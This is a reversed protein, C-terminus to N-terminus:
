NCRSYLLIATAGEQGHLIFFSAIAAIIMLINATIKKNIVDKIAEKVVGYSSLIISFIALMQSILVEEFGFELFIAIALLM